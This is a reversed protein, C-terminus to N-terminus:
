DGENPYQLHDHHKRRPYHHIRTHKHDHCFPNNRHIQCYEKSCSGFVVAFFLLLVSKAIGIKSQKL